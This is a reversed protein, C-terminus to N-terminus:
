PNNSLKFDANIQCLIKKYCHLLRKILKTRTSFIFLKKCPRQGSVKYFMWTVHVVNIKGFLNAIFRYTPWQHHMCFCMNTMNALVFSWINIVSTIILLDSDHLNICCRNIKTISVRTCVGPTSIQNIATSPWIFDAFFVFHSLLDGYFM